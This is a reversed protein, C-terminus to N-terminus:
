LGYRKLLVDYISGPKPDANKDVKNRRWEENWLHVTYAAAPIPVGPELSRLATFWDIPCFEDPPAWCAQLGFKEVGEHVLRPGTQGWKITSKDIKEMTEYCFRMLASGPDFKLVCNGSFVGGQPTREQGVVAPRDPLPRVCVVDADVWWGGRDLLLKYRFMNAFGAYSGKGAGAAAGYTFIASVPLIERADRLEVGPPVASAPLDYSYLHVRHGTAAFSVLSLRELRSLNNGIWLTQVPPSEAPSM